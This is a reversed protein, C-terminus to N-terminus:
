PKWLTKEEGNIEVAMDDLVVFSGRVNSDIIKGDESIVSYIYSIRM